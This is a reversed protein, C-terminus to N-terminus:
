ATRLIPKRGIETLAALFMVAIGLVLGAADLQWVGSLRSGVQGVAISGFGISLLSLSLAHPWPTM